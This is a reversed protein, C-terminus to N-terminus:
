DFLTKQTERQPNVQRMGDDSFQILLEHFEGVSMGYPAIPGLIQRCYDATGGLTRAERIRQVVRRRNRIAIPVGSYDDLNLPLCWDLPMNLFKEGSAVLKNPVEVLSCSLFNQYFAIYAVALDARVIFLWADGSKYRREPIHVTPFPFWGSQWSARREVEVYNHEIDNTAECDWKMAGHPLATVEYGNRMLWNQVAQEAAKGYEGLKQDYKKFAM